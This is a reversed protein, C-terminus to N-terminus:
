NIGDDLIHIAGNKLRFLSNLQNSDIYGSVDLKLLNNATNANVALYNTIGGLFYKNVM